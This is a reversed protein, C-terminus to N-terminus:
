DSQIRRHNLWIRRGAWARLWGGFIRLSFGRDFGPNKELRRLLRTPSIKIIRVLVACALPRTSLM